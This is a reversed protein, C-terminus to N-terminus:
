EAQPSKSGPVTIPGFSTRRVSRNVCSAIAAASSASSSAPQFPVGAYGASRTPHM